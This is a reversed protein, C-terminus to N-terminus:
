CKLCVFYQYRILFQETERLALFSQTAVECRNVSVATCSDKDALYEEVWWKTSWGQVNSIHMRLVTKDTWFMSTRVIPWIFFVKIGNVSAVQM